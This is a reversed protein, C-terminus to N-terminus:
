RSYPNGDVWEALATPMDTNRYLQRSFHLTKMECVPVPTGSNSNSFTTMFVYTISAIMDKYTNVM